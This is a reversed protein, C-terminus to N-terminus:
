VSKTNEITISSNPKKPALRIRAKSKKRAPNKDAGSKFYVPAYALFHERYPSDSQEGGISRLIGKEGKATGEVIQWYNRSQDSPRFAEPFGPRGLLGLCSGIVRGVVAGVYGPYVGQAPIGQRGGLSCCGGSGQM